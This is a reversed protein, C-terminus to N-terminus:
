SLLLVIGWAAKALRLAAEGQEWWGGPSQARRQSLQSSLSDESSHFHSHDSWYLYLCPEDAPGIEEEESRNINKKTPKIPKKGISWIYRSDSLVCQM